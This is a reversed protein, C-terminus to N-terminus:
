WGVAVPTPKYSEAQQHHGVGSKVLPKWMPPLTYAKRMPTAWQKAPSHGPNVRWEEAKGLVRRGQGGSKQRAWCEEGACSDESEIM